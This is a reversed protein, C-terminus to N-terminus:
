CQSFRVGRLSPESRPAAMDPPSLLQSGNSARQQESRKLDAFIAALDYNFRAAHAARAARVEQVIPDPIM